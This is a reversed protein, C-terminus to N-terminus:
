FDMLESYMRANIKLKMVDEELVRELLREFRQVAAPIVRETTALADGASSADDRYRALSSWGELMERLQRLRDPFSLTVDIREPTERFCQTLKRGVSVLADVSTQFGGPPIGAALREIRDIEEHCSTLFRQQDPTLRPGSGESAAPWVLRVGVLVAVGLPIALPLPMGVAAAAVLGM